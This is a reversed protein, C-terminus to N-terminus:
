QVGFLEPLNGRILRGQQRTGAQAGRGPSGAAHRHGAGRIPWRSGACLHRRVVTTGALRRAVDADDNGTRVDAFVTGQDPRLNRQQLPCDAPRRKSAARAPPPQRRDLPRRRRGDDVWVDLEPNALKVGHRHGPRPWARHPLRLHLHLVPLPVFLRHRVRIRHERAAGRRRGLGKRVAKLIAYDGCGPCWRVEQDSAFDKPKLKVPTTTATM